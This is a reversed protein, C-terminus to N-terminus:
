RRASGAGAGAGAGGSAPRTSMWGGPLVRVRPADNLRVRSARLLSPDLSAMELIRRTLAGRTDGAVGLSPILQSLAAGARKESEDRVAEYTGLGRAAQVRHQFARDQLRSLEPGVGDMGDMGARTILDTVANSARLFAEYNARVGKEILEMKPDGIGSVKGEKIMQNGMGRGIEYYADGRLEDEFRDFATRKHGAM